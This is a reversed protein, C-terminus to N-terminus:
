RSRGDAREFLEKFSSPGVNDQRLFDLGGAECGLGELVPRPTVPPFYKHGVGIVPRVSIRVASSDRDKGTVPKSQAPWGAAAGGGLLSPDNYAHKFAGEEGRHEDGIPPAAGYLRSSRRNTPCTM